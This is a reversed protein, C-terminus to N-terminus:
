IFQRYRLETNLKIKEKQPFMRFFMSLSASLSDTLFVFLCSVWRWCVFVVVVPISITVMMMMMQPLTIIVIIKIIIYRMFLQWRLLVMGAAAARENTWVPQCDPILRNKWNSESYCQTQFERALNVQISFPPSKCPGLTARLNHNNHTVEQFSLSVGEASGGATSSDANIQHRDIPIVFLPACTDIFNVNNRRRCSM